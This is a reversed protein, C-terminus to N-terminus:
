GSTWVSQPQALPSLNQFRHHRGWHDPKVGPKIRFLAVLAGRVGVDLRVAADAARAGDNDALGREWNPLWPSILAPASHCYRANRDGRRRLNGRRLHAPVSPLLPLFRNRAVCDPGHVSAVPDLAGQAPLGACGRCTEYEWNGIRAQHPQTADISRPPHFEYPFLPITEGIASWSCSGNGNTAAGSRFVSGMLRLATGM